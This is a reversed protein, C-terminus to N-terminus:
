RRKFCLRLLRGIFCCIKLHIWPSLFLMSVFVICFFSHTENKEKPRESTICKTRSCKMRLCRHGQWLLWISFLLLLTLSLCEASREVSEETTARVPFHSKGGGGKELKLKTCNLEPRSSTNLYPCPSSAM